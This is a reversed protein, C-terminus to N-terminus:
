EDKETLERWHSEPVMVWRERKESKGAENTFQIALAPVKGAELAEQYIKRLWDSKLSMSDSQTAKNEVLYEATVVDGKAGEMNGSGPRLRGGIRKSLDTEAVRGNHGKNRAAIRRTFPSDM